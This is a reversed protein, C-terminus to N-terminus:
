GAPEILEVRVGAMESPRLYLYRSGSAATAFGGDLARGGFDTPHLGHGRVAAAASSASDVHFAVEFLTGDGGSALEAVGTGRQPELLQLYTGNGIPLMATRLAYGDAQVDRPTVSSPLALVTGLRSALREINGTLICAHHLQSIM